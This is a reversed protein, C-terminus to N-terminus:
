RRSLPKWGQATWREIRSPDVVRDIHVSNADKPDEVAEEVDDVAIRLLLPATRSAEKAYFWAKRPDITLFVKGLSHTGVFPDKAFRSRTSPVLGQSTIGPLRARGTGHYLFSPEVVIADLPDTPVDDPRWGGTTRAITAM